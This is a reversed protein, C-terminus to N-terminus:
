RPLTAWKVVQPNKELLKLLKIPKLFFVVEFIKTVPSSDATPLPRILEMSQGLTSRDYADLRQALAALKGEVSTVRQTQAVEKQSDAQRLTNLLDRNAQRDNEQQRLAEEREKLAAATQEAKLKTELLIEYLHEDRGPASSDSSKAFSTSFSQLTSHDYEM